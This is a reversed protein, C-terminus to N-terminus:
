VFKYLKELIEPILNCINFIFIIIYITIKLEHYRMHEVQTYIYLRREGM